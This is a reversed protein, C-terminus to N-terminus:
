SAAREAAPKSVTMNKPNVLSYGDAELAPNLKRMVGLSNTDTDKLKRQLATALRRVPIQKLVLGEIERCQEESAAEIQAILTPAEAVKEAAAKLEAVEAELGAIKLDRQRLADQLETVRPQLRQVEGAKRAVIGNIVERYILAFAQQRERTGKIWARIIPNQLDTDPKADKVPEEVIDAAAPVEPVPHTAPSRTEGGRPPSSARVRKMSEAKRVQVAEVTTRGDAIQMLESARSKGIGCKEKVLIEWEPWNGGRGEHIEKLKKLHQGAAIFFDKAKQKAKEGKEVLVKITQVLHTETEQYRTSENLWNEYDAAPHAEDKSTLDQQSDPIPDSHQKDPM